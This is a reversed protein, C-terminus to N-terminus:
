VPSTGIDKRNKRWAKKQRSETRRTKGGFRYSLETSQLLWAYKVSSIGAGIRLDFQKWSAQYAISAVYTDKLPIAGEHDLVKDMNLIPPVFPLKNSTKAYVMASAQLILSDRRNFRIETAVRASVVEGRIEPTVGGFWEPDLEFDNLEGKTLTTLMPSLKSFDPIGRAKIHTYTVGGHISWNRHLTLSVMGGAGMYSGVFEGLSLRHYTASFAVDLPGLRFPNIKLSGNYVGLVNLLPATTVQTRPAIGVTVTALGVKVEGMELTYATFDTNHKPNAGLLHHKPKLWRHTKASLSPMAEVKGRVAAKGHVSDQSPTGAQAGVSLFLGLIIATWSM